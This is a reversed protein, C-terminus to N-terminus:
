SRKRINLIRARKSSHGRAELSDAPDHVKIAFLALLTWGIEILMRSETLSWVLLGVFILIPFLYLASTHRVALRWLPVFTSVLFVLFIAAGIFGLQMTVDLYANHAQYYPVNKIVVLGEYPAVGPVWHSTWGWGLVPRERILGIVLKWIGSRGTMDPSKGFFEFVEARYVAILIGVTGALAWAIRYYKHRTDRDKGEAAISVVAAVAVAAIAFGIGASKALLVAAISAFISIVSVWRKVGIIAFEVAFIVLGLMAVFALLNSNGVMGQIRQGDLLHGQVWYFAAAPPKNGSYNKFIPAIPGHLIVAAVFEMVFSGALIFRIVNAFIKLLHRWSFLATLFVAFLSTAIQSALALVSIGPYASWIISLAIWTLFAWFPWSIQSITKSIGHRILLYMSSGFFIALVAGWGWWGVLYRVTDGSLLTFLGVSATYTKARYGAERTNFVVRIPRTLATM